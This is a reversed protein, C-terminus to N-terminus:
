EKVGLKDIRDSRQIWLGPEITGRLYRFIRKIAKWRVDSPTQFFQSMRNVAFTIDPQSHALYQLGGTASRYSSPNSM